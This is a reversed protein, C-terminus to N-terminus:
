PEVKMGQAVAFDSLQKAAMTGAGLATVGRSLADAADREKGLVLYSRVLQQWGELDNPNERLKSDLSAVMQEIMAARDAPPMQEAAQAQAQDPGNATRALMAQAAERWPDDQPLSATLKRWETAAQETQGEQAKVMALFFRAKPMDPTDKLAQEFAAQAEKTILGGSQYVLAEGLGAQRIASSGGLRLANRYASVADDFRQMKIYIPALVDWGRLDDPNAALQAEARAVLEAPTNTSPDRTMRASLPQEPLNPSGLLAYLGWSVLPISIVAAAGAIRFAAGGKAQKSVADDDGARLIRRGIEARAQEAEERALIGRSVDREVEALQDRYVNIENAQAGAVEVRRSLPILVALSAAFTLLAAAVWFFM